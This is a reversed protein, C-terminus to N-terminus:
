SGPGANFGVKDVLQSALKRNRAIELLPTTDAKLVGFSQVTPDLPLGERIPNEFNQKAVLEQAKDGVLWEALRVAQAKNPAHRALAFGSINVHTGGDKFKPLVV